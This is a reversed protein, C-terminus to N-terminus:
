VVLPLGVRKVEKKLLEKLRDSGLTTQVVTDAFTEKVRTDLQTELISEIDMEPYRLRLRRRQEEPGCTVVWVESFQSQNCVEILLPIEVFDCAIQAIEEMILPHLFTNVKRRLAPDVSIAARLTAASVAHPVGLLHSLEAQTDPQHFIERAVEDASLTSAGMGALIALVTSKGEAIGGTIAISM